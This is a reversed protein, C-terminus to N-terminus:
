GSRIGTATCCARSHLVRAHTQLVMDCRLVRWAGAAPSGSPPPVPPADRPLADSLSPALAPPSPPPPLLAPPPPLLGGGCGCALPLPPACAATAAPALGTGRGHFCAKASRHLSWTRNSAHSDSVRLRACRGVATSCRRKESSGARGGAGGGERGGEGGKGERRGGTRGAGGGAREGGAEGWSTSPPMGGMAATLLSCTHGEWLM